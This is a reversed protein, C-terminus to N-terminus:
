AAEIRKAFAEMTAPHEREMVLAGAGESLIQARVPTHYLYSTGHVSVKATFREKTLNAKVWDVLNEWRKRKRGELNDFAGEEWAKHYKNFLHDELDQITIVRKELLFEKASRKLDHYSLGTDEIDEKAM